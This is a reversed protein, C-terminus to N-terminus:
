ADPRTERGILGGLLPVRRAFATAGAYEGVELGSESDGLAQHRLQGSRHSLQLSGHSAPLLPQRGEGILDARQRGLDSSQLDIDGIEVLLDAVARLEGVGRRLLQGRGGDPEVVEDLMGGHNLLPGLLGVPQRCRGVLAPGLM